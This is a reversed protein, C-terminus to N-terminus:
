HKGARRRSIFAIIFFAVAIGYYVNSRGAAALGIFVIGLIFFVLYARKM